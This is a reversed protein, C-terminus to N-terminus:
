AHSLAFPLGWGHRDPRQMSAARQLEQTVPLGAIEIARVLHSFVNDPTWAAYMQTATVEHAECLIEQLWIVSDLPVPLPDGLGRIELDNGLSDWAVIDEASAVDRLYNCFKMLRADAIGHRRCFFEVCDGAVVSAARVSLDRPGVTVHRVGSNLRAAVHHSRLSLLLIRCLYCSAMFRRRSSRVTLNYAGSSRSCVRLLIRPTTVVVTRLDGARQPGLVCPWM